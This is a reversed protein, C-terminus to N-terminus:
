KANWLRKSKADTGPIRMGVMCFYNPMNTGALM